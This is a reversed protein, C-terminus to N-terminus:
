ISLLSIEQNIAELGRPHSIVKIFKQIIQVHIMSEAKTTIKCHNKVSDFDTIVNYLLNTIFM